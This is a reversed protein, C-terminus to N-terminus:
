TPFFKSDAFTLSTDIYWIKSKWFIQVRIYMYLSCFNNIYVQGTKGGCFLCSPWEIFLSNSNLWILLTGKCFCFACMVVVGKATKYWQRIEPETSTPQVQLSNSSANPEVHRENGSNRESTNSEGLSQSITFTVPRVHKTDSASQLPLRCVPCTSQKRLWLDICGLHFTHGCKPMM